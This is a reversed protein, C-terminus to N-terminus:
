VVEIKHPFFFFGRKVNKENNATTNWTFSTEAKSLNQCKKWGHCAAKSHVKCVTLWVHRLVVAVHEYVNNRNGNLLRNLGDRSRTPCVVQATGTATVDTKGLPDSFLEEEIVEAM